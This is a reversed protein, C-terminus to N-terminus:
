FEQYEHFPFDKRGPYGEFEEYLLLPSLDPHGDFVVGFLDHNEREYWEAAQWVSTVSPLRADEYSIDTKVVLTKRLNLSYLIYVMQLYEEFYVCAMCILQKADIGPHDKAIRCVSATDQPKIVIQPLEQLAGPEPEFEKLADLAATLFDMDSSNLGEIEPKTDEAGGVESDASESGADDPVPTNDIEAM